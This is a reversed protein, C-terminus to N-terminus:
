VLNRYNGMLRAMFRVPTRDWPTFRPLQWIDTTSTAVGWRTSLAAEFGCGSVIAAHESLYDSGPKGNPYAFYRIPEGIIAELRAKGERIERYAEHKPLNALIPHTITHGGIEMGSAKLMKLQESTMMLDTPLDKGVVSAVYDTYEQRQGPPLHKLQKLLLTAAEAREELTQLSYGGLGLTRLDLSDGPMGRLAELVSDNWMRGGDLFGTTVFFTAPLNWRQLIPLANVVNDAYGDDFTICVSAPPLANHKMLDLAQDLPLVSFFRALLEMQWSFDQGDIEGPRMPDTESLVRHYILISLRNKYITGTLSRLVHLAIRNPGTFM